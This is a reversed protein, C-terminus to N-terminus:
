RNCTNGTEHNYLSCVSAIETESSLIRLGNSVDHSAVAYHQSSNSSIKRYLFGALESNKSFTM